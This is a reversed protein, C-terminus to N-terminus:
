GGRHLDADDVALRPRAVGPHHAFRRRARASPHRLFPAARASHRQRAPRARRTPAGDDTARHAALPARGRRRRVATRGTQAGLPMARSLGRDRGTSSRHGASRPNQRGQRSDYAPRRRRDALRPSPDFAGRRHAPWRWLLAGFRRRRTGSDVSEAGRRRSHGDGFGGQRRCRRAAEASPPGRAALAVRQVRLRARRGRARSLARALAPRFARTAALSPRDGRCAPARSLRALRGAASRHFRRCRAPRRFRENLFALFQRADRGYAELTKAALRREDRLSALWVVVYAALEPAAPLTLADPPTPM